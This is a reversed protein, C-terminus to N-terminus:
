LGEPSIQLHHLFQVLEDPLPATAARLQGDFPDTLAIRRCHLFLRTLGPLRSGGYRIDGALPHGLDALQRRLQHQRGTEPQLNLLTLNTATALVTFRTRAAKLKGKAPVASELWGEAPLSGSVLGLYNKEVEGVMFAGGFRAIAAHGKGFLVPGSTELDLRHLPAVQFRCGRERLLCQVRATLNDEEHGLSSHVALGAPKDIALLRETELLITLAPPPATAYLARLRASDPLSIRDGSFLHTDENVPIGARRVRGKRLLQRLYAEPAQPIQRCLWERACCRDESPAVILDLM